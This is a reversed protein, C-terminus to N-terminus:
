RARRGPATARTTSRRERGPRPLPDDRRSSTADYPRTTSLRRDPPRRRGRAERRRDRRALEVRVTVGTSDRIADTLMGSYSSRIREAALSSPVGLVLTEGDFDLPRVGPFWTAWTAPALQERLTPAGQDWIEDATLVWREKVVVAPPRATWRRTTWLLTWLHPSDGLHTAGARGPDHQHCVPSTLRSLTGAAARPACRLVPTRTRCPAAPTKGLRQSPGDRRMRM